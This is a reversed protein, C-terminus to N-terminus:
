FDLRVHDAQNQRDRDRLKTLARQGSRVSGHRRNGAFVLVRLQRAAIEDRKIPNPARHFARM